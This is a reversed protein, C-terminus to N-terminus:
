TNRVAIGYAPSGLDPASVFTFTTGNKTVHVSSASTDPLIVTTGGYSAMPAHRSWNTAPTSGTSMTSVQTWTRGANLSQYLFNNGTATKLGMRAYLRGNTYSFGDLRNGATANIQRKTWNVADISTYVVAGASYEGLSACFLGGVSSLSGSFNYDYQTSLDGSPLNVSLANSWDTSSTRYWIGATTGGAVVAIYRGINADYLFDHVYTPRPYSTSTTFIKSTAKQTWTIFDKSTFEIAYSYYTTGGSATAPYTTTFMHWTGTEKVYRICTADGAYSPQVAPNSVSPATPMTLTVMTWNVGDPSTRVFIQPNNVAYTITTATASNIGGYVVWQGNAFVVNKGCQGVESVWTAGDASHILGSAGVVVFRRINTNNVSISFDRDSYAGKADTARVTFDYTAM